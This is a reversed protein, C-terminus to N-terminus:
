VLAVRCNGNNLGLGMFDGEVGIKIENVVDLRPVCQRLSKGNATGEQQFIRGGCMRAECVGRIRLTRQGFTVIDTLGEVLM